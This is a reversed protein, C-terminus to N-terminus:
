VDCIGRHAGAGMAVNRCMSQQAATDRVVTVPYVVGEITVKGQYLFPKCWDLSTDSSPKGPSPVSEYTVMTKGPLTCEPSCELTEYVMGDDDGRREVAGSQGLGVVLAM